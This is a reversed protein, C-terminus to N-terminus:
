AIVLKIREKFRLKQVVAPLAENPLTHGDGNHQSAVCMLHLEGDSVIAARHCVRNVYHLSVVAWQSLRDSLSTSRASVFGFTEISCYHSYTTDKSKTMSYVENPRHTNTQLASCHVRCCALIPSYTHVREIASYVLRSVASLITHYTHWFCHICAVTIGNAPLTRISVHGRVSARDIGNQWQCQRTISWWGPNTFWM